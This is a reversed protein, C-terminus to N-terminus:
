HIDWISPGRNIKHEILNQKSLYFFYFFLFNFCTANEGTVIAMVNLVLNNKQGLFSLSYLNMFALDVSELCHHPMLELFYISMLLNSVWSLM